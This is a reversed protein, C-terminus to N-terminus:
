FLIFQLNKCTTLKLLTLFNNRKHFHIYHGADGLYKELDGLFVKSNHGTM